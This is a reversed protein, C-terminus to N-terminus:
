QARRGYTMSVVAHLTLAGLALLVFGIGWIIWAVPALWDALAPLTSLLSEVWPLVAAAGTKFALVLDAPFWLGVWGPIPLVEMQSSQGVMAGIGHMSWAAISHLGWVGVSWIALLALILFWSIAYLM